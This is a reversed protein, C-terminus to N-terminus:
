KNIKPKGFDQVRYPGVKAVGIETVLSSLINDKHTPSAMWEDMVQQISSQNRAVNEALQSRTYGVRAVRTDLLSGDSGTHSLAWQDFNTNMDQAHQYAALSLGRSYTLPTLGYQKRISNTADILQLQTILDTTSFQISSVRQQLKLLITQYTIRNKWETQNILNTLKTELKTFFRSQALKFKPVLKMFQTYATDITDVYQSDISFSASTTTVSISLWIVLCLLLLKSLSFRM